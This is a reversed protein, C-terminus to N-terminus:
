SFSDKPALSTSLCPVSGPLLVRQPEAPCHSDNPCTPVYYSLRAGAQLFAM